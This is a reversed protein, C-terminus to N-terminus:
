NRGCRGRRGHDINLSGCHLHRRENAKGAVNWLGSIQWSLTNFLAWSFLTPTTPWATGSQRWILLFLLGIWGQWQRWSCYFDLFCWFYCFFISLEFWCSSILATSTSSKINSGTSSNNPRPNKCWYFPIRPQFFQLICNVLLALLPSSSCSLFFDM